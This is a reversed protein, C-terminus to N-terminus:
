WFAWYDIVVVKGRYDSLKFKKGDMDEGEIDPAVKGVSLKQLLFLANEAQQAVGPVDAYNKTAQTLLEEAEAAIKGAQERDGKQYAAEYTGRLSQGLMLTLRGKEAQDTSKQLMARVVKDAGPVGVQLMLSVTQQIEKQATKAAPDDKNALAFKELKSLYGVAVPALKGKAEENFGKAFIERVQTEFESKITKFEALAGTVPMVTLRYKGTMGQAFTTAVIKYTDDRPAKFTIQANPFGGGDDDEALLKGTSDQLRLYPDFKNGVLTVMDIVYTKGQQMKFTHVKFHKGGEMPDDATLETEVKLGPDDGKKAPGKEKDGAWAPMPLLLVLGWLVARLM